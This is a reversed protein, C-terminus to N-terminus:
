PNLAFNVRFEEGLTQCPKLKFQGIEQINRVHTGGCPIGRFGEITVIRLDRSKPLRDLSSPDLLLMAEQRSLTRAVVNAGMSITSNVTEEVSRLQKKTPPEGHYAVYSDDGVWSDTTELQRGLVRPLCSDLLHAATHKRMCGYRQAWDLTLSFDGSQATGKINRGWHVVVGKAFMVKNVHFTFEEGLIRGTDSPQGGSKPHFITRDMVLYAGNRGDPEFRLVTAASEKLYSDTLYLLDTVPIDLVLSELNM